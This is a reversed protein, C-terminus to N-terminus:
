PLSARAQVIVFPTIIFGPHRHHRHTTQLHPLVEMLQSDILISVEIFAQMLTMQATRHLLPHAQILRSHRNRPHHMVLPLDPEELVQTRSYSLYLCVLQRFPM